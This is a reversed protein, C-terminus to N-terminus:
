ELGSINGAVENWIKGVTSLQESVKYEEAVAAEPKEQGGTKWVGLKWKLDDAVETDYVKRYGLSLQTFQEDSCCELMLRWLQFLFVRQQDLLLHSTECDQLTRAQSLHTILLM